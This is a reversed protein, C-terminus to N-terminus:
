LLASQSALFRGDVLVDGVQQHLLRTLVTLHATLDGVDVALLTLLELAKTLSDPLECRLLEADPLLLRLAQASKGTLQALKAHLLASQALGRLRQLLAIDVEQVVDALRLLCEILLSQVRRTRGLQM